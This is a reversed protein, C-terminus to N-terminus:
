SATRTAVTVHWTMQVEEGDFEAHTVCTEADKIVAAKVNAESILRAVWKVEAENPWGIVVLHGDAKLSQLASQIARPQVDPELFSLVSDMLVMDYVGADFQYDEIFACEGEVALGCEAAVANIANIGEAAPDVARVRCQHEKALYIADRGYGAGLDLVHGGEKCHEMLIADLKAFPTPGFPQKGEVYMLNWEAADRQAKSTAQM